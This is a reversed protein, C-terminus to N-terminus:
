LTIEEDDSGVPRAKGLAPLPEELATRIARALTAITPDRFLDGLRARCGVSRFLM